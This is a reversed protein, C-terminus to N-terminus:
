SRNLARKMYAQSSLCSLQYVVEIVFITLVSFKCGIFFSMVRMSPRDSSVPTTANACSVVDVVDEVVLFAFFVFFLLFVALVVVGLATFYSERDIQVACPRGPPSAM